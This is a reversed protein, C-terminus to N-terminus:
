NWDFKKGITEEFSLNEYRYHQSLSYQSYARDIPNRLLVILKVNPLIEHMREAAKEYFLYYPSAEGALTKGFSRMSAVFKELKSPFHGKYWDVGKAYHHDFFHVEINEAPLVQPHQVLYEYLSTTGARQTGIIIFDPLLGTGM